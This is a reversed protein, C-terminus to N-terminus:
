KLGRRIITRYENLKDNDIVKRNSSYMYLEAFLHEWGLNVDLSTGLSVVSTGLSVVRNYTRKRM